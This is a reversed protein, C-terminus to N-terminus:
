RMYPPFPIDLPLPRTATTLKPVDCFRPRCDRCLPVPTPPKTGFAVRRVRSIFWRFRRCADKVAYYLAAIRMGTRGGVVRYHPVFPWRADNDRYHCPLLGRPPYVDLFDFRRRMISLPIQFPLFPALNCTPSSISYRRYTTQTACVFVNWVNRTSVFTLRLSCM